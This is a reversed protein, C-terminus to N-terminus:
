VKPESQGLLTQLTAALAVRQYDELGALFDQECRDMLQDARKVLGRGTPTARLAHARRDRPNTARRVLGRRQLEDVLAVVTARDAGLLAAVQQQSPGDAHAIVALASYHRTDLGL